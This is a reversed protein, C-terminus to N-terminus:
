GLPCDRLALGGKRWSFEQFGQEGAWDSHATVSGSLIQPFRCPGM